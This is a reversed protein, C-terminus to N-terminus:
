EGTSNLTFEARGNGVLYRLVKAPNGAVIANKPVDKTVTSGAGVIANEGITLRSLITAGSGISAGNRVVTHEVQWDAETQLKGEGSTARPYSDNIFTVGHGIFVNDEITVGECVFTHSSIKCRKGIKANKQVEVFAGVKTEDGIECGYLNIFKSLKVNNGLTVDSAICLYSDSLM